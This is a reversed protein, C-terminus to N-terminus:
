MKEIEKDFTEMSPELRIGKLRKLIEKMENARKILGTKDSFITPEPGAGLLAKIALLPGAGAHHLCMEGEGCLHCLPIGCMLGRSAQCRTLAQAGCVQCKETAHKACALINSPAISEKCRGIWPEDFLCQNM